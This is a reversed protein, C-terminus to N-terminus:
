ANAGECNPRNRVNHLLSSSVVIYIGAKKLSYLRRPILEILQLLIHLRDLSRYRIQATVKLFMLIQWRMQRMDM